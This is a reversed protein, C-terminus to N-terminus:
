SFNEPHRVVDLQRETSYPTLQDISAQMVREYSVGIKDAHKQWDAVIVLTGIFMDPEFYGEARGDMVSRATNVFAEEAERDYGVDKRATEVRDPGGNGENSVLLVRKGDKYITATYGGGERGARHEKYNKITYGGVTGPVYPAALTVESETKAPASGFHGGNTTPEGTQAKRAAPKNATM